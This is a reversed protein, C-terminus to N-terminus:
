LAKTAPEDFRLIRSEIDLTGRLGIPVTLNEIDHGVQFGALIPIDMGALHDKVIDYVINIDGCDKFSGLAVGAIDKLRGSLRMHCLMRDIRYPAEGRDELLLIAGKLDPEYPTGILHCLNTLNGGLVPGSACGPHLVVPEAPTLTIPQNTTITQTLADRTRETSKGLTTVLPGHFTIWGLRHYFAALPVTIDSFGIFIKPNAAIAEFDLLPLIRASGFGGRACFIARVAPDKFLAMLQKARHADSGALYDKQELIGEPIKVKFGIKELVAVGRDFADREFPGAPAAIGVTDGQNLRPPKIVEKKM